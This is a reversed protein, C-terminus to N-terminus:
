CGRNACVDPMKEIVCCIIGRLLGGPNSGRALTLGCVETNFMLLRERRPPLDPKFIVQSPM